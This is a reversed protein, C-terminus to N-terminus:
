SEGDGAVGIDDALIVRKNQLMFDVAEIQHPFLNLTEQM